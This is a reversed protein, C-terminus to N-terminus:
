EFDPYLLYKKRKAKYADLDAQWSKKIEQESKGEMIQKRLDDTGALKDIFNNSLFFKDKDTYAKYMEILYELKIGSRIDNVDVATLNLGFCKKGLLPPSKAGPKAVSTFEYANAIKIKDSGIIQFPFDTGRGVSVETGEFFCLSPYLYIATANPLNPSPKVPLDYRSQHTYNKCLVTRLKCKKGASLWGEGNVMQAYEAVTLGHVVPIPDMGVFSKFENKLVPGDVYWGNPNPRDLVILEINNEACSEMIYHLTSIFTYFRAGVDQIDFILIEINKLDAASPKKKNGYLSAVPIGTAADITDNVHEGADARGRFGHEPAFIRVINVGSKKLTDALHVEGIVSTQNVVLGVNRNRILPLYNSLQEAGTTIRTEVTLNHQVPQKANCGVSLIWFLFAFWRNIM